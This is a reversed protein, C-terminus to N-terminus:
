EYSDVSDCDSCNLCSMIANMEFGRGAAYRVLKGRREYENKYSISREKSKLISNLTEYYENMEITELAESIIEPEVGKSRLMMSIKMKGWGSFRFKDRAYAEAYREDSIFRDKVLREVIKQSTEGDMGWQRLKEMVEATCHEASSCYAAAKNLAEKETLEKM